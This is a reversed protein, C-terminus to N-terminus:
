RCRSCSAGCCRSGSSRVSDSRRRWTAAMVCALVLLTARMPWVRFGYLLTLSIWVFHFPITKWAPWAIMAAYNAVAFAVWLWSWATARPWRRASLRCRPIGVNRVTEIPADPGLQRRLRRVCVDVVNSRPDFDFGWVESLLRQRSVVEGPHLM